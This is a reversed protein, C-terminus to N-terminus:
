TYKEPRVVRVEAAYAIVSYDAFYRQQLHALIADAIPQSVLTEIRLQPGAWFQESVGRSGHGHVEGITYGRAGLAGLDEILRDRLVGETIITVLTVNNPQM